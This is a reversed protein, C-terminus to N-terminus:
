SKGLLFIIYRIISLPEMKPAVKNDSTAHASLEFEFEKESFGLEM